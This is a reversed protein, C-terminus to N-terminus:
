SKDFSKILKNINEMTSKDVKGITGIILNNPKIIERMIENIEHLEVRNIIELMESISYLPKKTLYNLGYYMMYEYPDKFQFLLSTENQKKSKALEEKTIGNKEIDKLEDLIGKITKEVSVDDVGVSIFMQGVDKFNRNYSNNYYSVGMKNRLLNFLRSSFGNSLIDCVLDVATNNYNYTNYTNFVFNIVTQNINKQIHIYKQLKPKLSTFTSIKSNKDLFNHFLKPEITQKVLDTKFYKQISKVVMDTEFNGSVCLLCNSGKYNENRYSMIDNRNMKSITKKYGIIPRALTDDLGDYLNTYIENSLQRHNSDENMRLEELVVNREKIIDNDPFTPNLYLDIVIDLLTTIDRPDGSIYYLTFEHGTMANYQAGISDLDIMLKESTRKKTGKFTMHELFHAIGYASTEQRSGASIFIGVSVTNANPLPILLTNMLKDSKNKYKDEMKYLVLETKTFNNNSKTGGIMDLNNQNDDFIGILNEIM